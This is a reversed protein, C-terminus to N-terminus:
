NTCQVGQGLQEEEYAVLLAEGYLPDEHSKGESKLKFEPLTTYGDMHLPVVQNEYDEDM